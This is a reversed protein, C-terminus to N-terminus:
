HSTGSGKQTRCLFNAQETNAKGGAPKPKQKKETVLETVMAADMQKEVEAINTM